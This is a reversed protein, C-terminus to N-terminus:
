ETILANSRINYGLLEPKGDVMLWNFDEIAESKEFRTKFSVQMTTGGPGTFARWNTLGSSKVNGLKRHIAGLLKNWEEETTAKKFRDSSTGYIDHFKGADLQSHFNVVASEALAKNKAPNCASTLCLVAALSIAGFRRV